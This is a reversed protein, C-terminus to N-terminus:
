TNSPLGSGYLLSAVLYYNPNIQELVKKVDEISLVVPLKQQRQSRLSTKKNVLFNLFAEVDNDHLQAPHQKHHFHIYFKIWYNYALLQL